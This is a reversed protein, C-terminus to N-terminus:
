FNSFFLNFSNKRSTENKILIKLTKKVSKFFNKFFKINSSIKKIDFIGLSLIKNVRSFYRYNLKIKKERKYFRFSVYKIKYM